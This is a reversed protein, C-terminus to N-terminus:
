LDALAQRSERQIKEYAKRNAREQEVSHDYVEKFKRKIKVTEGRMVRVNEGNVSLFLPMDREPDISPAYFDVLEEGPDVKTKKDKLEEGPDIETKEIKDKEVNQNSM